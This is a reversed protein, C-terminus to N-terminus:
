RVQYGTHRCAMDVATDGGCHSVYGASGGRERSSFSVNLATESITDDRRAISGSFIGSAV